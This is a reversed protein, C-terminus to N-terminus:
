GVGCPQIFQPIGAIAHIKDVPKHVFYLSICMFFFRFFRKIDGIAMM